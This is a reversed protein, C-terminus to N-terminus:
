LQLQKSRVSNEPRFAERSLLQLKRSVTEILVVDNGATAHALFETEEASSMPWAAELTNLENIIQTEDGLKRNKVMETVM